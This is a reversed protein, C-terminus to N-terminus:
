QSRLQSEIFEQVYKDVLNTVVIMVYVFLCTITSICEDEHYFVSEVRSAINPVSSTFLTTTDSKISYLQAM